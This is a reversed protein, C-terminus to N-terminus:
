GARSVGGRGPERVCLDVGAAYLVGGAILFRVGAALLPPMTRNVVRIALYTTGWIVYVAGLATWIL